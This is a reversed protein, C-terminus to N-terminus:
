DDRSLNEGLLEDCMRMMDVVYGHQWDDSDWLISQCDNMEEWTTQNNDDESEAQMVIVGVYVIVGIAVFMAVLGALIIIPGYQEETM